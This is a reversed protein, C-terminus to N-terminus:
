NQTHWASSFSKGPLKKGSEEYDKLREQVKKAM